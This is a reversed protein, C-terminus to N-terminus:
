AHRGIPNAVISRPEEKQAQEVPEPSRLDGSPARGTEVGSAMKLAAVTFRERAIEVLVIIRDPVVHVSQSRQSVVDEVSLRLIAENLVERDTSGRNFPVPESSHM